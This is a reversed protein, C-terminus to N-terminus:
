PWDGAAFGGTNIALVALGNAASVSSAMATMSSPMFRAGIFPTASCSKTVIIIGCWWPAMSM